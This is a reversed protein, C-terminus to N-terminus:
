SQTVQEYYEKCCETDTEFDGELGEQGCEPCVFFDHLEGDCEMATNGDEDCMFVCGSFPNFGIMAPTQMVYTKDKGGDVYASLLDRMMRLERGGMTSIDLEILKM